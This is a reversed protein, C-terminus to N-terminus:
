SPYSLEYWVFVLNIDADGAGAPDNTLTISYDTNPKLIIEELSGTEGTVGANNGQGPIFLNGLIPSGLSTFVTDSAYFEALPTNSSLRNANLTPLLTGLTDVVADEAMDVIIPGESASITLRKFHVPIAGTRFLASRSDGDPVGAEFYTRYFVMGDHTLRHEEKITTIAHSFKDFKRNEEDGTSDRWWADKNAM